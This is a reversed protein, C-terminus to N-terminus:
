SKGRSKAKLIEHLAVTRDGTDPCFLKHERRTLKGALRAYYAGRRLAEGPRDRNRRSVYPAIVRLLRRRELDQRTTSGRRFAFRYILSVGTWLALVLAALLLWLFRPM